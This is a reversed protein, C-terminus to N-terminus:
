AYDCMGYICYQGYLCKNNCSGCHRKDYALDVCQGNCCSYTYKCKNHCAGCHQKNTSLDFCKNGCCTSNVGYELYCVEYDKHCHDAPRLSRGHQHQNTTQTLFRSVRKSPLLVQHTDGIYCKNNCSGCHRKDYALDVCQGNCCSYTYKCKNHCAGCHQKNTGLDFCKNGCCTSNVGYVLYCVEYDKHCHDAPRLSRRRHHNSQALFRSVRKSPFSVIPSYDGDINQSVRTQEHQQYSTTTTTFISLAIVMAMTIAILFTAKLMMKKMPSAM